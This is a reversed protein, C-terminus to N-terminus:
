NQADNIENQIIKTIDELLGVSDLLTYRRRDRDRCRGTM